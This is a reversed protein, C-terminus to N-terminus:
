LSSGMVSEEGTAESIWLGLVWHDLSQTGALGRFLAATHLLLCYGHGPGRCGHKGSRLCLIGAQM